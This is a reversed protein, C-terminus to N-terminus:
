SDSPPRPTWEPKQEGLGPIAGMVPAADAINHPPRLAPIRGVPSDVETWRDRAALQPHGAVGIVDNVVANAIGAADLRTVVEAVTLTRLFGELRSEILERHALRAPNTAFEPQDALSADGVVGACFRRFETDSQVAFLVQGDACAYAGYPVIMNHRLGVRQPTANGGLHVYLPPMMWETMCELMSIDVCAGQGTRERRYLASVASSFAYHGSGIDAISVGAKAPADPTGTMSVIGSEAQILMDYAKKDRYPGEAGYGSIRVWVLRPARAALAQYGLGLREIAGATLNHVFVDADLVLREVAALGEPTKLDLAVSRKGRNLWAFYASLGRMAGDYRRAVDGGDPHEVKIVEAGLDAFQRTCFPGSVAQEIALVRLGEFPLPATM